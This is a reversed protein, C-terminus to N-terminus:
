RDVLENYIFCEKLEKLAKGTHSTACEMLAEPTGEAVIM